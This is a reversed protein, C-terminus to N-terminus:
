LSRNRQNLAQLQEPTGVNEWDGRYLEATIRHARMGAFLLPGLAARTGPVIGDCLSARCLALNAYTWTSGDPGTGDGVGFGDAALGFDGKPHYPPNPVLWLHATAASRAFRRAAEPDFPFQPAHIDGSVLWFPDDPHDVLLPLAKAIGGATELAGGHDRGELSYRIAVGFRSGDGLAAVIQDELWATNIVIERVGARALAELHWEILPKGAVPLLPKPTHDTLPRMREGRGAALILARM